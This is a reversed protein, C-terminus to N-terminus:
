ILESRRLTLSYDVPRDAIDTGGSGAIQGLRANSVALQDSIENLLKNGSEVANTTKAQATAAANIRDTERKIIEGAGAEVLKRDASLEGGATGYNDRTTEILTRYLDALRAAAGDIGADADGQTETIEALLRALRTSADGEFLDGAQMDKLLAKLSGVKAWM